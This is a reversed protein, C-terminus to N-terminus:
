NAVEAKASLYTSDPCSFLGSLTSAYVLGNFKCLSTIEKNELGTNDIEVMDLKTMDYRWINSSNHFIINADISLFHTGFNTMIPPLDSLISQWSNGEDSSMLLEKTDPTVAYLVNSVRFINTLMQGLVLDFDGNSNLKYVENRSSIIFYDNASYIYSIEFDSTDPIGLDFRKLLAAHSQDIGNNDEIELKLLYFVAASQETKAPILYQNDNTCGFVPVHRFPLNFDLFSSDLDLMEVTESSPYNSNVPVFYLYKNWYDVNFGVGFDNSFPKKFYMYKLNFMRSQRLVRGDDFIIGIGKTINLLLSNDNSEAWPIYSEYDRFSYHMKWKTEEDTPEVCTKEDRCSLFFIVFLLLFPVVRM